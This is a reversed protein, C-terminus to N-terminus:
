HYNYFLLTGPPFPPLSDPESFWRTIELNHFDNTTRWIQEGSKTEGMYQCDPIRRLKLAALSQEMTGKIILNIM